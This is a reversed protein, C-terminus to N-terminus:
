NDISKIYESMPVEPHHYRVKKETSKKYEIAEKPCYHICALCFQCKNEWSPKGEVLSINNMSCVKECIGCSTCKETTRFGASVKSLKNLYIKHMLPRTFHLIENEIISEKANIAASIKKVKESANTFMRQQQEKKPVKLLPIYNDPMRVYFGASLKQGKEVLLKGLHKLAGGEYSKGGRTVVAFIYEPNKWVAKKIFEMVVGPMSYFYLPFVFGVFEAQIEVEQEDLYHTFPILACDGMNKQIEKAIFYSNGTGSFYYIVKRM